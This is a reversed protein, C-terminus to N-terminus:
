PATTVPAFTLPRFLGRRRKRLDYRREEGVSLTTAGDVRTNNQYSGGGSVNFFLTRSSNTPVSHSNTPPSFGPVTSLLNQYNRGAALSLSNLRATDIEHRVKASDTQLAAAAGEVRITETVGGVKLTVDV